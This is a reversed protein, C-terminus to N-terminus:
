IFLLVDMYIEVCQEPICLQTLDLESTSGKLKKESYFTDGTIDIKNQMCFRLGLWSKGKRSSPEREGM